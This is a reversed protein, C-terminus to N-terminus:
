EKSGALTFYFTAGEDPVAEAWVEGGHRRVIRSVTALGIGTGAFDEQRHLRQFPGFLKDAYRMDFGVGNDRVFFVLPAGSDGGTAAGVSIVAPRRGATFKVANGLLNRFVQLVLRRDGECWPLDATDLEVAGGGAEARVDMWAEAVLESSDIPEVRLPERGIRSLALLGEILEGMRTTNERVLRLYRSAADTLGEAHEESLIRAFGDIARLPARLDHSVSYSFAELERNAEELEVLRRVLEAQAAELSREAAKQQSIDRGEAMVATVQGDSDYVPALTLIITIVKGRASLREEYSVTQGSAARAFAAKVRAQVSPDFAWWQGELFNTTMLEEHTLGSAIEAVRGVLLTSGDLAIKGTLTTLSDVYDRLERRAAEVETTRERVRAELEEAHRELRSRLRSQRLAVALQDALERAVHETEAPLALGPRSDSLNLTGMLQGDSVLPVSVSSRLGESLAARVTPPPDPM